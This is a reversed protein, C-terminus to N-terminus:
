ENSGSGRRCCHRSRTVRQVLAPDPTWAWEDSGPENAALVARLAQDPDCGYLGAGWTTNAELVVLRGDPQRAIDLVCAPPVRSKPLGTLVHAVFSAAEDHFSARDTHM